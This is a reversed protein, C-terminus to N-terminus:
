GITFLPELKGNEEEKLAGVWYLVVYALRGSIWLSCIWSVLMVLLWDEERLDYTSEAVPAMWDPIPLRVPM